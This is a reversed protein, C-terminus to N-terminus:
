IDDKGKLRRTISFGGPPSEWKTSMMLGSQSSSFADLLHNVFKLLRDHLEKEPMM